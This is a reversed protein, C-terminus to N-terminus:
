AVQAVTGEDWDRLPLTGLNVGFLLGAALLLGLLWVRDLWREALPSHSLNDWPLPKRLM